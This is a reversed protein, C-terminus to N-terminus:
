VASKGAALGLRQTQLPTQTSLLLPRLGVDGSRGSPEPVVSPLVVVLGGKAILDSAVKFHISLVKALFVKGNRKVESILVLQLFVLSRRESQSSGVRKTTM